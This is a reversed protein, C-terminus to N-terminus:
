KKKKKIINPVEISVSDIEIKNAKGGFYQIKKWKKFLVVVVKLEDLESHYSQVYYLTAISPDECCNESSHVGMEKM